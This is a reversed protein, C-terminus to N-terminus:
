RADRWMGTIVPAGKPLPIPSRSEFGFSAYWADNAPNTSELYTPIGQDDWRDLMSRILASGLGKGKHDSHTGIYALHRHPEEPHVKEASLVVSLARPLRTGFARLTSPLSRALAIPPTKWDDVEHWLAVAQGSDVTEVLHSRKRLETAVTDRFLHGCRDEIRDRGALIYTFIPDDSFANALVAADDDAEHTDIPRVAAQPTTMPSGYRCRVAGFAFRSGAGALLHRFRDWM